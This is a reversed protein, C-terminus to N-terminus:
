RFINPYIRNQQFQATILQKCREHMSMFNFEHHQFIRHYSSDYISMSDFFYVASISCIVRILIACSNNSYRGHYQSAFHVCYITCIHQKYYNARFISTITSSLVNKSVSQYTKNQKKNTNNAVIFLM